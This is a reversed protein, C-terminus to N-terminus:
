LGKDGSRLGQIGESRDGITVTAKLDFSCVHGTSTTSLYINYDRVRSSDAPATWTVHGGLEGADLDKDTFVLDSM